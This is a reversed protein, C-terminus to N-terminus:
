SFAMDEAMTRAVGGLVGLREERRARGLGGGSEGFFSGARPSLRATTPVPETDALALESRRLAV